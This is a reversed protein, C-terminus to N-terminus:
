AAPLVYPRLLRVSRVGMYMFFLGMAILVVRATADVGDPWGSMMLTIPGLTCGLLAWTTQMTPAALAELKGLAHKRRQYRYGRFIVAGALALLVVPVATSILLAHESDSAQLVLYWVIAAVFLLSGGGILLRVLAYLRSLDM